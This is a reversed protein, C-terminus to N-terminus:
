GLMPVRTWHFFVLVLRTFHTLVGISFLSLFIVVCSRSSCLVRSYRFLVLVLILERLHSLLIECYMRYPLWMRTLSEYIWSPDLTLFVQFRIRSSYFPICPLQIQMPCTSWEVLLSEYRPHHRHCALLLWLYESSLRYCTLM